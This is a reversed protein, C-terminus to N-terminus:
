RTAANTPNESDRFNGSTNGAPKGALAERLLKATAKANRSVYFKMTSEHRALEMLIQPMVRQAWRDCFSRRLDHASAYKVPSRSKGRVKHKKGETGITAVANVKVKVM